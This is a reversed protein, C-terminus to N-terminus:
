AATASPANRARGDRSTAAGGAGAAATADGQPSAAAAAALPASQTRRTAPTESFSCM